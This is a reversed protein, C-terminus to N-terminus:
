GSRACRRWWRAPSARPCTASRATPAHDQRVRAGARPPRHELDEEGGARGPEDRDRQARRARGRGPVQDPGPGGGGGADAAYLRPLLCQARDVAQALDSGTFRALGPLASRAQDLAAAAVAHELQDPTAELRRLAAAVEPHADLERLAGVLARIEAAEGPDALADLLVLLDALPLDDVDVLFGDLRGRLREAEDAVAAFGDAPDPRETRALAAAAARVVPDDSLRVAGIAALLAAPDPHGWGAGSETALRALEHQADYRALLLTLSETVTPPVARGSSDCRERVTRRVRRWGGQVGPLRVAGQGPRAGARGPCRGRGAPGAVRRDGPGRHGAAARGGALDRRRRGPVRGHRHGAAPGRGPRPPGAAAGAAGPRRARRGDGPHLHGRRGRGALAPLGARRAARRRGARGAGGPGRRRGPRRPRRGRRGPTARGAGRPVPLPGPQPGAGARQRGRGPGRGGRGGGAPGGVLGRRRAAAPAGRPHGRGALQHPQLAILRELLDRAPPGGDPGPAAAAQEYGRVRNLEVGIAAVVERRAQEAAEADDGAALWAEYTQKLGLVFAKKDAQSDHILCSLEDLGRERLRAHVVDIAARKQSVFLVRKGDAVCDAILNTITQSKGTGPPGQIVFSTGERAKAIAALQSADGPVVLYREELPLGPPGPPQLARPELSFVQEFAACSLASGILENVDRVLSVTRYNVNTLTLACLDVDWQYPNGQEHRDLVYTERDATVEAGAEVMDSRAPPAAGFLQGLGSPQHEVRDRFIQLGLPRFDRRAYSYAYSRRGIGIRGRAARRNFAELRVRASRHVLEIRPRDQLRLTVGPETAAIQRQLDAHLAAVSGTRLDITEPLDLGYLQKLHQRLTPNVEAVPSEAQLLYSDRVGRKKSVTVPLLVLPSSIREDPEGKLDHWRLFAVVLRLQAVGYEARDRRAASILTDLVAAAYPADEWRLVSGLSLARGSLVRDAVDQRWTFLQEPRVNRADLLLPVSAETLNLSSQTPKFYLLRNRRSLDYLRDRLSTLVARRRDARDRAGAAVGALDFDLPQDRYTELRQALEAVDQARLQRDPELMQGAVQALVPHLRPNLRFLNARHEALREVDERQDLDLGCALGVLLLGLDAVDSLADHQGVLHEWSRWGPTLVPREPVEGPGVVDLSRAQAVGTALDTRQESRGVIDVAGPQERQVRAVAARAPVPPVGEATLTVRYRDDVALADPGGLPAVLGAAHLEAVQDFLPLLAALVDDSNMGGQEVALGVLGAWGSM